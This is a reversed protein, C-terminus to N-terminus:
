WDRYLLFWWLRRRIERDLMDPGGAIHTTTVGHLRCPDAKEAPKCLTEDHIQNIQLTQALRVGATTLISGFVPPSHSSSLDLCEPKLRLRCNFEGMPMFCAHSPASRISPCSIRSYWSIPPGYCNFHHISGFNHWHNPTQLLRLLCPRELVPYSPFSFLSGVM